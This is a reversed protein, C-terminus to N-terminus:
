KLILDPSQNYAAINATDDNVLSWRDINLVIIYNQILLARTIVIVNVDLNRKHLPIRLVM